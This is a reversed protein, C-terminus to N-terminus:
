KNFVLTFVFYWLLVCGVLMGMWVIFRGTYGGLIILKELVDYRNLM